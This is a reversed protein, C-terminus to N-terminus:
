GIWSILFNNEYLMSTIFSEEINEILFTGYLMPSLVLVVALVIHVVVVGNLLGVCIGGVHNFQKIVPFRAFLNLINTLLSVLIKCLIVIVVFAIVRIILGTIMAAFDRGLAMGVGLYGAFIGTSVNDSVGIYEAVTEYLIDYLPTNMLIEAVVSYLMCAIIASIGFSGVNLATKILGARYGMLTCIAIIGLVVLDALM